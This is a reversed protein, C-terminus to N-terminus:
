RTRARASSVVADLAQYLAALDREPDSTRPREVLARLQGCRDRQALVPTGKKTDGEGSAGAAPAIRGASASRAFQTRALTADGAKWALYGSHFRAVANDAHTALVMGFFSSAATGDGRLLSLEGLRLLPGNEEKNIEHAQRLHADASDAKFPAGDDLCMHLAGLQSHGRASAPNVTVLRRWADGAGTFDGLELRMAGLHYLADEHEPNIELGRRYSEAAQSTRRAVRHATAERYLQWFEQVRARAVDPGRPEAIVVRQNAQVGTQVTKGSRPWTVELTDVTTADGLGFTEILSNQSLYSAQAGVQRVQAAGRA